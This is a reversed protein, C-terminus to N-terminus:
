GKCLLLLLLELMVKFLSIESSLAEIQKNDEIKHKSNIDLCLLICIAFVAFMTSIHRYVM